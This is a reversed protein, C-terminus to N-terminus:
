TTPTSRAHRGHEVAVRVLTRLDAAVDAPVAPDVWLAVLAALLPDDWVPSRVGANAYLREREIPSLGLVEALAVATRPEPDRTGAEFRSVSSPDLGAREALQAKTWGREERFATLLRGFDTGADTV